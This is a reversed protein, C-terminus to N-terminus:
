AASNALGTVEAIRGDPAMRFVNVGSMLEKGDASTAIWDAVITGQCQRVAGRRRMRVGAMFRQSAGAHSVLDPLGELFSFRDRFRVGAAAIREFEAIRPNEEAIAWADFWADVVGAADAFVEDAVVNAFLSLQFRWGQVHQDRASPDAFEHELHVRTAPGDAELRITVRSAGAAIPQGSAYGFTFVIRDPPVVEIVEGSAEVGNPYRIQIKGGPRPEITSGAGWWKAWRANDTFFRFVTARPALIEVTRHLNHPLDLSM